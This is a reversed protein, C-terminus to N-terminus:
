LIRCLEEQNYTKMVSWFNQVVPSYAGLKFGKYETNAKWDELSIKM